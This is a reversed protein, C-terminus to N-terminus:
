IRHVTLLALGVLCCVTENTIMMLLIMTKLIGTNDAATLRRDRAETEDMGDVGAVVAAAPPPLFFLTKV